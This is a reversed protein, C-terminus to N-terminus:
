EFEEGQAEMLIANKQVEAKQANQMDGKARYLQSLLDYAEASAPDIQVYQNVVSISEDIRGLNALIIAYPQYATENKPNLALAKQYYIAANPLDNAKLYANAQVAHAHASDKQTIAILPTNDAKVADITGQPPFLGNQIFSKDIFRSFFIGYDYDTNYRERYRVYVPWVKPNIAAVYYWMPDICNTGIRITDTANYFDKDKALKFIAQKVSNMYYDTEYYGYAGDVGGVLENFYVIQNPHNAVSWRAPLLLGIVVLGIVAYKAIKNKFSWIISLFTLASLVVLLPYLFLMHRWGDYMPSKKYAVYVWPFIAIFFLFLITSRKLETRFLLIPSLIVGALVIIPNTIFMWHPIYSAPIDQSMIHRDDFLMRIGTSFQSMEGLAQLPNSLPAQLAYPWFILGFFYGAICLAIVKVATSQVEKSSLPYNKRWDFFYEIGLAVFVFPILLLGGIRIGIAYGIALALWLADKWTPKPFARVFRITFYAGMVMGLAFPIDKPNNMSEGFFRPSLFLFWAALLAADWGRILRALLATFLIALFGFIANIFHRTNFETPIGAGIIKNVTVCLLDYFGGYFYVNEFSLADKDEGGSAYYDYVHQGYTNQTVEDGSIGYDKSVWLMALLMLGLSIYTLLRFDIKKEM